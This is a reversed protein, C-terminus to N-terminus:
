YVNFGVRAKIRCSMASIQEKNGYDTVIKLFVGNMLRTVILDDCTKAYKGLFLICLDMIQDRVELLQSREYDSPKHLAQLGVYANKTADPVAIVVKEIFNPTRDKKPKEGPAPVGHETLWNKQNEWFLKHADEIENGSLTSYLIVPMEDKTGKACYRVNHDLDKKIEKCSYSQNGKLDPFTKLFNQRFTSITKSPEIIVHIHKGDTKGIEKVAIIVKGNQRCWLVINELLEDSESKVRFHLEPM